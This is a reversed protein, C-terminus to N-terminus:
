SGIEEGMTRSYFSAVLLWCHSSREPVGREREKEKKRDEKRVKCKVERWLSGSPCFVSLRALLVSSLFLRKGPDCLRNEFVPRVPVVITSLSGPCCHVRSAESIATFLGLSVPDVVLPSLWQIELLQKLSSIAFMELELESAALNLVFMLVKLFM